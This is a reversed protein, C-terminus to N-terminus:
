QSIVGRTKVGVQPRYEFKSLYQVSAYVAWGFSLHLEFWRLPVRKRWYFYENRRQMGVESLWHGPSPRAFLSAFGHARNRFGFWYYAAIFWGYRDYKQKVAPEYMGMFAPEDPTGWLPWALSVADRKTFLLAFPVVIPATLLGFVLCLLDVAIIYLYKM